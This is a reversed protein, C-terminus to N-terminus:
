AWTYDLSALACIWPRSAALATELPEFPDDSGEQLQVQHGSLVAAIRTVRYHGPFTQVSEYNLSWFFESSIWLRARDSM